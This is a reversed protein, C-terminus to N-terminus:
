QRIGLHRFVPAFWRRARDRYIAQVLETETDWDYAADDSKEADWDYESQAAAEVLQRRTDQDISRNM